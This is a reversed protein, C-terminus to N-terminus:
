IQQCPAVALPEYKHTADFYVGDRVVRQLTQMEGRMLVFQLNAELRGDPSVGCIDRPRLVDVGTRNRM